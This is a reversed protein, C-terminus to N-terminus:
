RIKRAARAAGKKHYVYLVSITVGALAFLVSLAMGVKPLNNEMYAKVSNGYMVALVGWMAYRVTRGIIVAAIFSSLKLRFAGAALVFVKFPCPPATLLTAKLGSPRNSAVAPRSRM